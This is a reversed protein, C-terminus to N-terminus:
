RVNRLSFTTTYARVPRAVGAARVGGKAGSREAPESRGALTVRVRTVWTAPDSGNPLLAPIDEFVDSRGQAYQVQLNRVKEAVPSWSEGLALDRRELGALSSASVRYQVVHFLGVVACRLNVDSDFGAPLGLDANLPARDLTLSVTGCAGPGTCKPAAALKLPALGPPAHDCEPDGNPGQVAFLMAGVPYAESFSRPRPSFSEPDLSLVTSPGILPCAEGPPCPTPRSLPAERDAFLVGLRDPKGEGGDSWVVSLGPPTGYGAVSLDRLVRDLGAKASPNEDSMEPEHAFSKQGRHLLLFISAMVLMAIVLAILIEVVSFPSVRAAPASPTPM